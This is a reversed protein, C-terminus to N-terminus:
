LFLVLIEDTQVASMKQIECYPCDRLLLFLFLVRFFNVVRFIVSCVSLQKKRLFIVAAVLLFERPLLKPFIIIFLGRM